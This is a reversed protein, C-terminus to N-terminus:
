RIETLTIDQKLMYAPIELTSVGWRRIELTEGSENEYGYGHTDFNIVQGEHNGLYLQGHGSASTIFTLFPESTFIAEYKDVKDQDKPVLRTNENFQALLVGNSPLDFGFTSFIDRLSTAHNRGFWGGTWDYINDLLKFSQTMINRRTYPLYGISVDADPALWAIGTALEGDTKRVPLLVQRENQKHAVPLRDGMRLWGSVYTASSSAYVPVRDGTVVIFDEAKTFGRIDTDTAIAIDTSAVWGFGRDSLVLLYGGSKSRHLIRIHSGIKVVDLNWLDWRSKGAQSLGVHEPQISPVMRLLSNRVLIGAIPKVEAPITSESFESVLEGVQAASYEVALRNGYTRGQLHQIQRRVVDQVTASIESPTQSGIDPMTALLGPSQSLQNNISEVLEEELNSFDGMKQHYKQNMAHIEALDLITKDPSEMRAVWFGAERMEPLTGPIVDPARPYLPQALLTNQGQLVLGTM